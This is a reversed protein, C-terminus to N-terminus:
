YSLITMGQQLENLLHQEKYAQFESQHNRLIGRLKTPRYNEVLQRDFVFDRTLQWEYYYGFPRCHYWTTGIQKADFRRHTHGFVVHTVQPFRDIVQGFAKSGLFANLQNWRAHEGEHQIIFEEKPVFHTTLLVQKNQPLTELVEVLRENVRHSVELDNGSRTIHRDYWFLEKLRRIEQPTQTKEYSYDYWGNVGLLITEESLEYPKFNLFAPAPFDEIAAEGVLDVMEHNGWHFTTSLKAQFFAVTELTVQHANATDGALHLHTVKQEVLFDRLRSLQSETLGNIDVHLDSIVALKGM